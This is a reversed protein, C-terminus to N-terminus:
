QGGGRAPPLGAVPPAASSQLRKRRALHEVDLFGCLSLLAMFNAARQARDRRLITERRPQRHRRRLLLTM